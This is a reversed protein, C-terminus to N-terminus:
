VFLCFILFPALLPSPHTPSTAAPSPPLPPSKIRHLIFVDGPDRLLPYVQCVKDPHLPCDTSRISTLAGEESIRGLTMSLCLALSLPRSKPCSNLFPSPFKKLKPTSVSIFKLVPCQHISVAVARATFASGNSSDRQLVACLCM